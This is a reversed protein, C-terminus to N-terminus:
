VWWLIYKFSPSLSTVQEHVFPTISLFFLNCSPELDLGGTMQEPIWSFVHLEENESTVRLYPQRMTGWGLLPVRITKQRKYGCEKHETKSNNYNAKKYRYISSGHRFWRFPFLGLRCLHLQTSLGKAKSNKGKGRQLEQHWKAVMAAACIGSKGWSRVGM